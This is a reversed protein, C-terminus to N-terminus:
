MVLKKSRAPAMPRRPGFMNGTKHTPRPPACQSPTSQKKFPCQKTTCQNNASKIPQQIQAQKIIPKTPTPVTIGKTPDVYRMKGNVIQVNYKLLMDDHISLSTVLPNMSQRQTPIPTQVQLQRTQSYAQMSQRSPPNGNDWTYPDYIQPMRGRGNRNEEKSGVDTTLEAWMYSGNPAEQEEIEEIELVVM